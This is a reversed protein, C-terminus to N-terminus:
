PSFALSSSYYATNDQHNKQWRYNWQQHPNSSEQKCSPYSLHGEPEGSQFLQLGASLIQKSNIHLSWNYLFEFCVCVCVCMCLCTHVATHRFNAPRAVLPFLANKKSVVKPQTQKGLICILFHLVAYCYLQNPYRDYGTLCILESFFIHLKLTFM